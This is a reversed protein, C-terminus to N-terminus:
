DFDTGCVTEEQEFRLRMVSNMTNLDRLLRRLECPRPPQINPGTRKRARDQFLYSRDVDSDHEIDDFMQFIRLSREFQAAFEESRAPGHYQRGRIEGRSQGPNGPFAPAVHRRRLM